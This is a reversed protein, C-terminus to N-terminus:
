RSGYEYLPQQVTATNDPTQRNAAVFGTAAGVALAGGLIASIVITVPDANPPEKMRVSRCGVLPYRGRCRRRATIALGAVAGGLLALAAADALLVPGAPSSEPAAAPEGPLRYLSLDAGAYARELGTWAPLQPGPTRHEVLVWGVGLGCSGTRRSGPAPGRAAAGVAAARPDEGSVLVPGVALRDDTLVTRPLWRPAPDLATRGGNWEFARFAAYPLALM